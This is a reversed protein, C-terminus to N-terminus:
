TVYIHNLGISQYIKTKVKAGLNEYQIYNNNFTGNIIIPKYYDEDVSLDLLNRISRIGKYQDEDYYKKLRFLKNELELLNEKINKQQKKQHLFVRKTEIEYLSKRIEKIESNSFKHALKELEERIKKIRTKDIKKESEKLSELTKLASLLM